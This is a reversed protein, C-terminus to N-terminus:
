KVCLMCWWALIFKPGGSLKNWFCICAFLVCSQVLILSEWRCYPMCPLFYKELSYGMIIVSKRHTSQQQIYVILIFRLYTFCVVRWHLIIGLEGPCFPHLSNKPSLVACAELVLSSERTNQQLRLLEPNDFVSICSGKTKEFESRYQIQGFCAMTDTILLTLQM